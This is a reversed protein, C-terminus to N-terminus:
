TGRERIEQGQLQDLIEEECEHDLFGMDDMDLLLALALMEAWVGDRDLRKRPETM